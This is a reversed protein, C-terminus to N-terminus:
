YTASWIRASALLECTMTGHRQDCAQLFRATCEGVNAMCDPLLMIGGTVSRKREQRQIGNGFGGGGRNEFYNPLEKLPVM